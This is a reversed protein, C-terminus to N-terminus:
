TPMKPYVLTYLTTSAPLKLKIDTHFESESWQNVPVHLYRGVETHAKWKGEKMWSIEWKKEMDM